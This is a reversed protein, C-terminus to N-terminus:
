WKCFRPVEPVRSADSLSRVQRLAQSWCTAPTFILLRPPPPPSPLQVNYVFVPSFLRRLRGIQSRLRPALKCGDARFTCLARVVSCLSKCLSLMMAAREHVDTQEATEDLSRYYRWADNAEGKVRTTGYGIWPSTEWFPAAKTTPLRREMRSSLKRRRQILWPGIECLVSFMNRHASIMNKHCTASQSSTRRSFEVM